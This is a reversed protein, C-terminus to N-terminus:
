KKWEIEMQHKFWTRQRKAYQRTDQILYKLLDEKSLQGKLFAMVRPYGLGTLAACSEPYGKNLLDRTETIMGEAIMRRCREEIRHHLEEKGPDLGIFKLPLGRGGYRQRRPSRPISKFEERHEQHWRSIPKGTLRYVELARIVRHINNAPIKAASEPDVRALEHHLHPRGEKDAVAKLEARLAPDASPMPALGETLAKFYLGTGGVLM